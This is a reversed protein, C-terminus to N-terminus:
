AARERPRGRSCRPLTPLPGPAKGRQGGFCPCLALGQNLCTQVGRGFCIPDLAVTDCFTNDCSPRTLKIGYHRKCNPVTDHFGRACHRRGSEITKNGWSPTCHWLLCNKQHAQARLYRVPPTPLSPTLHSRRRAGFIFGPM